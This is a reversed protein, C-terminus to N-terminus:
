GHGLQRGLSLDLEQVTVSQVFGCFIFLVKEKGLPIMECFLSWVSSSSFSPVPLLAPVLLSFSSFVIMLRSYTPRCTKPCFQHSCPGSRVCPVWPHNSFKLRTPQIINEARWTFNFVQYLLRERPFFCQVPFCRWGPLCPTVKKRPLVLMGSCFSEIIAERALGESSHQSLM